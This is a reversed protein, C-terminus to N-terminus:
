NCYLFINNLIVIYMFISIYNVFFNLELIGVNINNMGLLINFLHFSNM